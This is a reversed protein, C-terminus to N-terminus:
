PFYQFTAIGSLEGISKPDASYIHLFKYWEFEMQVHGEISPSQGLVASLHCIKCVPALNRGEGEEEGGRKQITMPYGNM